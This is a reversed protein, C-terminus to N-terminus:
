RPKNAHLTKMMEDYIGDHKIPPLHQLFHEVRKQSPQWLCVEIESKFHVIQVQGADQQEMEPVARVDNGETFLKAISASTPILIAYKKKKGIIIKANRKAWIQQAKDQPVRHFDATPIFHMAYEEDTTLELEGGVLKKRSCEQQQNCGVSAVWFMVDSLVITRLTYPKGQYSSALIGWVALIHAHIYRLDQAIRNNVSKTKM